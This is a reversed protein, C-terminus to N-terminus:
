PKRPPCAGATFTLTMHSATRDAAKVEVTESGAAGVGSKCSAIARIWYTEGVVLTGTFTDVDIMRLTAAFGVSQGVISPEGYELPNRGNWRLTVVIQRTPVPPGLHIDANLIQQGEALHIVTARRRDTVGPYYTVPFPNDPDIGFDTGFHLIYDGPPLPTFVFPEGHQQHGFTFQGGPEGARLLGVGVNRRPVGDPGLVRGSITGTPAATAAVEERRELFGAGRAPTLRVVCGLLVAVTLARVPAM